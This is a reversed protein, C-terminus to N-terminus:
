FRFRQIFVKARSYRTIDHTVTFTGFAAAGRAQVILKYCVNLYKLLSPHQILYDTLM